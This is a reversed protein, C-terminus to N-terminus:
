QVTLKATRVTEGVNMQIMYVGAALLQTNVPLFVEGNLEGYNKESVIQSILFISPISLAIFVSVIKSLINFKM